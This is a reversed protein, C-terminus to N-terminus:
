KGRAELESKTKLEQWFPGFEYATIDGYDYKYAVYGAGKCWKVNGDDNKTEGKTFCFKPEKESQVNLFDYVIVGIWVLLALTILINFIKRFIHKKKKPKQQNLQELLRIYNEISRRVYDSAVQVNERKIVSKIDGISDIFESIVCTESYKPPLPYEKEGLVKGILKEYSIERKETSDGKILWKIFVKDGSPSEASFYLREKRYGNVKMSLVNKYGINNLQEVFEEM